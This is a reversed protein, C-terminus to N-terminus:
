IASYNSHWNVILEIQFRNGPRKFLKKFINSSGLDSFSKLILIVWSKMYLFPVFEFRPETGEYPM